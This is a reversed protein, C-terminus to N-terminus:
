MPNARSTSDSRARQQLPTQGSPKPESPRCAKARLAAQVHVSGSVQTITSSSNAETKALARCLRLMRPNMRSRFLGPGVTLDAPMNAARLAPSTVQAARAAAAVAANAAMQAATAALGSAMIEVICATRFAALRAIRAAFSINATLEAARAEKMDFLKSHSLSYAWEAAETAVAAATKTAVASRNFKPSGPPMTLLLNYRAEAVAQLKSQVALSAFVVVATWAQAEVVFAQAKAAASNAAGSANRCTTRIRTSAVRLASMHCHAAAARAEARNASKAASRQASQAAAVAAALAAAEIAQLAARSINSLATAEINVAVFVATAAQAASIAKAASVMASLKLGPM